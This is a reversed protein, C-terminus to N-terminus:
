ETGKPSVRHEGIMNLDKKLRYAMEEKCFHGLWGSRVGANFLNWETDTLKSYCFTCKM